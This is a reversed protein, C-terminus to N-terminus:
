NQHEQFTYKTPHNQNGSWMKVTSCFLLFGWSMVAFLATCRERIRQIGWMITALHTDAGTSIVEDSLNGLQSISPLITEKPSIQRLMDTVVRAAYNASFSTRLVVLLAAFSVGGRTEALIRPISSIGTGFFLAGSSIGFKKSNLLAKEIKILNEDPIKFATGVMRCLELTYPQIGAQALRGLVGITTTVPTSALAVWDVQGSTQPFVRGHHPISTNSHIAVGSAQLLATHIDNGLQSSRLERPLSAKCCPNLVKTM